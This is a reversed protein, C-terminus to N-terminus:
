DLSNKILMLANIGWNIIMLLSIHAEKPSLQLKNKHLWKTYIIIDNGKWCM